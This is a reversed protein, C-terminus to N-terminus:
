PTAPVAAPARPRSRGAADPDRHRPVGAARQRHRAAVWPRAGGAAARLVARAAVAAVLLVLAGTLVAAPSVDALGGVFAGLWLVAVLM